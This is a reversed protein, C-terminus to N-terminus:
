GYWGRKWIGCKTPTNDGCWCWRLWLKLKAELWAGTLSGAWSIHNSCAWARPGEAASSITIHPHLHKLCTLTVYQWNTVSCTVVWDSQSHVCMWTPCWVLLLHTAAHERCATLPRCHPCSQGPVSAPLQPLCPSQLAVPKPQGWLQERQVSALM